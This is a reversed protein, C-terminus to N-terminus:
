AELSLRYVLHDSLYGPDENYELVQDVHVSGEAGSALRYTFGENALERDVFVERVLDKRTPGADVRAYPIPLARGSRTTAVFQRKRNDAVVRRLKM